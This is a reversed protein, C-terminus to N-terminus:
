EKRWSNIINKVHLPSISQLEAGESTITSAKVGLPAWRGAHIPRKNPYLGLSNIGLAAALHVPGTGSALLGDSNKVFSIFEVLSFQGTVDIVNKLTKIWNTLFVKENESGTIFIQYRDPDLSDILDKYSDLSWERGNGRSKPHILLNFKGTTLLVKQDHTLPSIRSLGYYLPLESRQYKVQLGLTKLLLINLQAEHLDSNKRSLRVLKNCTFWHYIRNKTGIRLKIGAMKTLRAIRKQPLVHLVADFNLAKLEHVVERDSIKNWKDVNVFNDVYESSLIIDRTYSNGLFSIKVPNLHKKILGCMPLTLIVDGIADTRNILIHM